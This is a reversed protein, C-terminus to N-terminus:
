LVSLRFPPRRQKRPRNRRSGEEEPTRKPAPPSPSSPISRRSYKSTKTTYVKTYDLNEWSFLKTHSRKTKTPPPPRGAALSSAQAGVCSHNGWYPQTTSTQIRDELLQSPSLDQTSGPPKPKRALSKMVPPPNAEPSSSRRRPTSALKTTSPNIGAEDRALRDHHAQLKRRKKRQQGSQQNGNLAKCGDQNTRPPPEQLKVLTQLRSNSSRSTCTATCPSRGPSSLFFIFLLGLSKRTIKKKKRYRTSFPSTSHKM